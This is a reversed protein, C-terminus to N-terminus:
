DVDKLAAARPTRVPIDILQYAEVAGGPSPPTLAFVYYRAGHYTSEGRRSFETAGRVKCAVIASGDSKRRREVIPLRSSVGHGFSVGMVDLADGRDIAAYVYTSEVTTQRIM